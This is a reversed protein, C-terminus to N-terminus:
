DAPRRLAATYLLYALAVFPWLASVAATLGNFNLFHGQRWVSLSNALYPNGPAFNVLATAVMLLVGAAALRARTPLLGGALAILAGGGLGLVAGPTLWELMDRPAFLTGYALSRVVLAAVVLAFVVLWAPRDRRVLAGAFLGVAALNAGSILAEVRVFVEPPAFRPPVASFLDRLDGNGFLLTEPDLQTLLWLGLLVLGADVGEGDRFWRDRIEGLTAQTRSRTLAAGLAGVFGGGINLMWDLHSAVRAPLYAQTQELAFSVIMGISGALTIALLTGTRRPLAFVVLAGLPIYVAVNAAVDFATVFQPWPHLWFAAGGPGPSRWGALPYLSAYVLILAYAALLYRAIPPARTASTASTSPPLTDDM